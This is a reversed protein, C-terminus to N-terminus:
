PEFLWLRVLAWLFIGTLFLAGVLEALIQNVSFALERIGARQRTASEANKSVLRSELRVGEIASLTFQTQSNGKRIEHPRIMFIGVAARKDRALHCGVSRTEFRVSEKSASQM